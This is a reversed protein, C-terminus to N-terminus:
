LDVVLHYLGRFVACLQEIEQMDTYGLGALLESYSSGARILFSYVYGTGINGVNFRIHGGYVDFESHDIRGSVM